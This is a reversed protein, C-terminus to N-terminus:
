RFLSQRNKSFTSDWGSQLVSRHRNTGVDSMHFDGRIPCGGVCWAEHGADTLKHLVDKVAEPIRQM